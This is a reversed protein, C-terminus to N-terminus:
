DDEISFRVVFPVDLADHVVGWVAEGDAYKIELGSPGAVTAQVSGVADLVTWYVTGQGTDVCQLWVRNDRGLVVGELAPFVKPIRVYKEAAERAEAAPLYTGFRESWLAHVSDAYAAPVARATYDYSRSLMTEGDPAIWQVSFTGPPDLGAPQTVVVISTGDPHQALFTRISLPQPTFITRSGIRAATRTQRLDRVALQTLYEGDRGLLVWPSATVTGDAVTHTATQAQAIVSGNATLGLPFSGRRNQSDVPTGVVGTWHHRGEESFLSLRQLLWDTAFLTDARWGVGYLHRFEGPGEGGRGITRVQEGTGADYVRIAHEMELAVFLESRDASLTLSSM